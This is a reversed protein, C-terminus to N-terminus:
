SQSNKIIRDYRLRPNQLEIYVTLLEDPPSCQNGHKYLIILFFSKERLICFRFDRAQWDFLCVQGALHSIQFITGSLFEIVACVLSTPPFLVEGVSVSRREFHFNLLM